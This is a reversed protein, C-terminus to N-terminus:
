HECKLQYGSVLPDVSVSAIEFSPDAKKQAPSEGRSLSETGYWRTTLQVEVDEGEDEAGGPHGRHGEEAERAAVGATVAPMVCGAVVHVADAAVRMSQARAVRSVALCSGDM